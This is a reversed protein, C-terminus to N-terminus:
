IPTISWKYRGVRSLLTSKHLAEDSLLLNHQNYTFHFIVQTLSQTDEQTDENVNSSRVKSALIEEALPGYEWRPRHDNGALICLFWIALNITLERYGDEASHNEWPIAKYEMAGKYYLKDTLNENEPNSPVEVPRVRVVLVEKSTVLFGYRAGCKVCYNFIQLLPAADRDGSQNPRWRGSHDVLEGNRLKHSTWQSGPKVECPLRNGQKESLDLNSSATSASAQSNSSIAGGDPNPRSKARISSSRVSINGKRKRPFPSPNEEPKSTTSHSQPTKTRSTAVWLVPSFINEVVRLATQVMPRTWRVLIDYTTDEGSDVCETFPDLKPAPYQLQRNSRRLEEMLRGGFINELTEYNFDEWPLVKKPVLFRKSNTLTTTYNDVYTLDPNKVTLYEFISEAPDEPM